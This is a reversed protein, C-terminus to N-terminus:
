SQRYLCEKCENTFSALQHSVGYVFLRLPVRAEWIDEGMNARVESTFVDHDTQENIMEPSDEIVIGSKEGSPSFIFPERETTEKMDQSNM